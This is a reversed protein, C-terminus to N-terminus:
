KTLQSIIKNDDAFDDDHNEDDDNDKDITTLLDKMMKKMTM